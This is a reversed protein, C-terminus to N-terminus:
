EDELEDEDEFEPDIKLKRITVELYDGDKIGAVTLLNKPIYVQKGKRRTVSTFKEPEGM